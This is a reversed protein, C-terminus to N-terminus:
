PRQANGPDSNTATYLKVASDLLARDLDYTLRERAAEVAIWEVTRVEHAHTQRGAGAVQMLFWSVVKKRERGRRRLTYRTPELATVSRARVGTEEEVERIAAAEAREGPEVWGKPFGWTDHASHHILLVELKEERERIVVGGASWEDADAPTVDLSARLNRRSPM